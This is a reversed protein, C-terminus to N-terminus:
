KVGLEIKGDLLRIVRDSYPYIRKSNSFYIITLSYKKQFYKLLNLFIEQDALTLNGTPEDALIFKPKILLARALAVCQQEFGTLEKPYRNQMKTLNLTALVENYLKYDIAKESLLIPFTINQEVTLSPILNYFQYIIGINDRRYVTLEDLLMKTLDKNEVIIEGSTAIDLGGLIHMLTSKGGGTESIFSLFENSNVTFSINNLVYVHGKLKSYTKSLNNVKILEM